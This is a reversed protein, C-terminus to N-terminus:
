DFVSALQEVGVGEKIRRLEFYIVAVGAGTVMSSIASTLPSLVLADLMAGGSVAAMPGGIFLQTILGLAVSFLWSIVFLGFIAGRRNRTLDASRTFSEMVGRREVVRVPSVVSWALAMLVGPVILLLFGVILALTMLITIAILPLLHRLATALSDGVNARKGNLDSMTGHILAAQLLPGVALLMVWGGVAAFAASPNGPQEAVALTFFSYVATPIGSFVLSLLLFVLFNRKLVGLTLSLVHGVSLDRPGRAVDTM